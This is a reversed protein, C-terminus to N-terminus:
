GCCSCTFEIEQTNSPQLVLGEKTNQRLLDLAAEKSLERGMAHRLVMAATDGAALCTEKRDTVRCSKGEMAKKKRCICELVAFPGPSADLLAAVQDFDAPQQDGAPISEEVPITRMQPVATGLFSVGFAPSATYQNFDKLFEPTLQKNFGEYMGVVLPMNCYFDIGDRSRYGIVGKQAMGELIEKLNEPVRGTAALSEAIADLPQFRYDLHVAVRAEEPTFFHKLVRIDAGSLTRPFGVPQRNLHKQLNRYIKDDTAM